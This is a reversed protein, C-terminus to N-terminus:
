KNVLSMLKEKKNSHLFGVKQFYVCGDGCIHAHIRAIAPNLKIM